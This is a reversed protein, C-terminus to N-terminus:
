INESELIESEHSTIRYELGDQVLVEGEEPFASYGQTLKFLGKDGRFIIEFVVPIKDDDAANFSAFNIATGIDMSTSTYGMLHIKSEPVYKSIEDKAM